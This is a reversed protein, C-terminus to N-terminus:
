KSNLWAVAAARKEAATIATAPLKDLEWAITFEISEGIRLLKTASLLELETYSPCTYVEASCGGDPFTEGPTYTFFEGIVVDDIIAALWKDSDAGAKQDSSASPIFIGTQGEVSFNSAGNQSMMIYGNPFKSNANLNFLTQDPSNVQTVNWITYRIPEVSLIKAQKIKKIIQRITLRSGEEALRIERVSQAGCFESVPSTIEVGDALVKITHPAGDFYPDPPWAMGNIKPFDNQGTPWVKDGGFNTWSRVSTLDQPLTRGFTQPDNWLINVGDKFGYFMIRGIAPVVIVQTTANTIQYADNWGNWKMKKVGDETTIPKTTANKDACASFILFWTLLFVLIRQKYNHM